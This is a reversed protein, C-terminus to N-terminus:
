KASDESCFTGTGREALTKPYARLVHPTQSESIRGTVALFAVMPAATLTLRDFFFRM